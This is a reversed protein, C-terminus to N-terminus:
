VFVTLFPNIIQILPLFHSVVHSKLKQSMVQITKKCLMLDCSLLRKEAIHRTKLDSLIIEVQSLTFTPEGDEEKDKQNSEDKEPQSEIIKGINVSEDLLISKDAQDVSLNLDVGAAPM